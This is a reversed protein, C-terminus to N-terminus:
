HCAKLGHGCWTCAEPLLIETPQPHKLKLSNTCQHGCGLTLALGWLSIENDNTNMNFIASTLHKFSVPADNCTFSCASIPKMPPHIWVKLIATCHTARSPQSQGQRKPRMFCALFSGSYRVSVTSLAWRWPIPLHLHRLNSWPSRFM